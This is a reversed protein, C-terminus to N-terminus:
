SCYIISYVTSAKNNIYKNQLQKNIFTKYAVIRRITAVCRTVILKFASRM